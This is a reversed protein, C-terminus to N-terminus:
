NSQESRAGAKGAVRDSALPVLQDTCPCLIGPPTLHDGHGVKPVTARGDLALPQIQSDMKPSAPREAAAGRDGVAMAAM